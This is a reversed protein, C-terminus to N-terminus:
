LSMNGLLFYDLHEKSFKYSQEHVSGHFAPLLVCLVLANPMTTVANKFVSLLPHATDINL